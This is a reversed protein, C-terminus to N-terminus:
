NRAEKIKFEANIANVDRTVINNLHTEDSTITNTNGIIGDIRAQTPDIDLLNVSNAFM